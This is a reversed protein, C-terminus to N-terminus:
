SNPKRPRLLILTSGAVFLFVVIVATIPELSLSTASSTTTTSGTNAPAVVSSTTTSISGGASTTSSSVAGATSFSITFSSSTSVARSSSSSSSSGVAPAGNPSFELVRDFSSDAVWLNGSSDVTLGVPKWLDSQTTVPVSNNNLVPLISTFDPHGIVMNASEGTSLPAAFQLVRNYDRDAVWLNGSSDFALASPTNMATSNTATPNAAFSAHGLIISPTELINYPPAFATVINFTNAVWINGAKDVALGEPGIISSMNSAMYSDFSESPTTTYDAAGLVHSAPEHNSFPADFRMLRDDGTDAVWLNGSADFAIARPDSLSTQNEGVYAAGGLFLSATMGNSFPSKFELVLGSREDSVWVDGSSDIALGSPTCVATLNGNLCEKTSNLDPQGLVVSASEGNTFPAKFELVRSNGSDAVWLNGSPDVAVNVPVSLRAATIKGSVM